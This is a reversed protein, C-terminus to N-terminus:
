ASFNSLFEGLDKSNELAPAGETEKHINQQKAYNPSFYIRVLSCVGNKNTVQNFSSTLIFRNEDKSYFVM